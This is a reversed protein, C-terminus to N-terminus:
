QIEFHLEDDYHYQLIPLSLASKIIHYLEHPIFMEVLQLWRYTFYLRAHLYRHTHIAISNTLNFVQPFVM